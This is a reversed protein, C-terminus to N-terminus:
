FYKGGPYSPNVGPPLPVPPKGQNSQVLYPIARSEESASTSPTPQTSIDSVDRAHIRHHIRAEEDSHGPHSRAQENSHAHHDIAASLVVAM